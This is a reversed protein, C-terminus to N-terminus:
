EVPLGGETEDDGVRAKVAAVLIMLRVTPDSASSFHDLAWEPHTKAAALVVQGPFDAQGPRTRSIRKAHEYAEGPQSSAITGLLMRVALDSHAEAECEALPVRAKRPWWECRRRTRGSRTPSRRLARPRIGSKRSSTLWSETSRGPSHAQANTDARQDQGRAQPESEEVDQEADAYIIEAMPRDSRAAREICKGYCTWREYPREIESFARFLEPRIREEWEHSCQLRRAHAGVTTLLIARVDPDQLRAGRELADELLAEVDDGSKAHKLRFLTPGVASFARADADQLSSLTERAWAGDRSKVAALLRILDKAHPDGISQDALM